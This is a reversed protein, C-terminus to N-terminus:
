RSFYCWCWRRREELWRLEEGCRCRESGARMCRFVVHVVLHRDQKVTPCGTRPDIVGKGKERTEEDGGGFGGIRRFGLNLVRQQLLAVFLGGFGLPGGRPEGSGGKKPMIGYVFGRAKCVEMLKLMYKLIGDQARSGGLRIETTQKPKKRPVIMSRSVTNRSM